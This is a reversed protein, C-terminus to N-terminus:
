CGNSEKLSNLISKLREKLVDNKARAIQEELEAIKKAREGDSEGDENADEDDDAVDDGAGGEIGLKFIQSFVEAMKRDKIAFVVEMGAWNELSSTAKKRKSMRDKTGEDLLVRKWAGAVEGVPNGYAGCGWAGLVVRRVGKSKVIRMVARMKREVYERDKGSAYRKGRVEEGDDDDDDLEPFRLMGATVVDVFFRQGKPLDSAEADFSRFVLVDSTYVGGVEPLRYFEERLAPYLTTRMCLSEEQSTAGTLFGGGPRLPSAMNLIAVKNTNTSGAKGKRERSDAHCMEAAVCLMDASQIRIMPGTGSGDGEGQDQDQHETPTAANVGTGVGAEAESGQAVVPGPEVFVASGEVGRRARAYSQLLAPVDKNVTQKARKARADRRQSPPPAGLSPTIRGM